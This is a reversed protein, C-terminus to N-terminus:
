SLNRGSRLEDRISCPGSELACRSGACPSGCPCRSSTLPTLHRSSRRPPTLCLDSGVRLDIAMRRRLVGHRRQGSPLPLGPHHPVVRHRGVSLRPQCQPDIIGVGGTPRLGPIGGHPLGALERQHVPRIGRHSAASGGLGSLSAQLDAASCTPSPAPPLPLSFSETKPRGNPGAVTFSAVLSSFVSGNVSDVPNSLTVSAPYQRFTGAACYPICDNEWLQGSGVASTQTWSSWSLSEFRIGDDACAIVISM